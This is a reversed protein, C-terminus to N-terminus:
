IMTESTDIIEKYMAQVVSTSPNSITIEKTEPPMNDSNDTMSFELFNICRECTNQTTEVFKTCSAGALSDTGVISVGFPEPM